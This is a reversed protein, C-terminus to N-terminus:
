INDGQLKTLLALKKEIPIDTLTRGIYKVECKVSSKGTLLNFTEYKNYKMKYKNSLLAGETFQKDFSKTILHWYQYKYKRREM